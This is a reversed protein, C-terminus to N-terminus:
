FLPRLLAAPLAQDLERPTADLLDAAAQLASDRRGPAVGGYDMLARAKAMLAADDMPREPDGFSDRVEHVRREGAAAHLTVRAGYHAPYAADLDPAPVLRVRAAAERLQPNEIQAQDFHEPRL